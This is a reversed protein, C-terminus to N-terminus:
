LRSRQDATARAYVWAKWTFILQLCIMMLGLWQDLSILEISANANQWDLKWIPWSMVVGGLAPFIWLVAFTQYLYYRKLERNLPPAASHEPTEDM